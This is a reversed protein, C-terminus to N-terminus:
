QWRLALYVCLLIAIFPLVLGPYHYHLMFKTQAPLRSAFGNFAKRIASASSSISYAINLAAVSLGCALFYILHQCNLKRLPTMSKKGIM